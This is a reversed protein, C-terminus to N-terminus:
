PGADAAPARRVNGALQETLWGLQQGIGLAKMPIESRWPSNCLVTRYQEGALSVITVNETRELEM